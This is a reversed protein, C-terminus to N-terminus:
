LEIARMVRDLQAPVAPVSTFRVADPDKLGHGTVTCVIRSGERIHDFGFVPQRERDCVQIFGRDVGRESAGRLYRGQERAVAAGALIEEDTV